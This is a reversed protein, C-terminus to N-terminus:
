YRLNGSTLNACPDRPLSEPKGGQISNILRDLRRIPPATRTYIIFTSPVKHTLYQVMQLKQNKFSFSEYTMAGSQLDFYIYTEALRIIQHCM